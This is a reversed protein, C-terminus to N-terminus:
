RAAAPAVRPRSPGRSAASGRIRRGVGVGVGTTVGTTDSAGPADGVGVGVGAGVGVGGGFFTGTSTSMAFCGSLRDEGVLQVVRPAGRGADLHHQREEALAVRRIPELALQVTPDLLPLAILVAVVPQPSRGRHGEGEIRVAHGPVLNAAVVDRGSARRSAATAMSVVWEGTM